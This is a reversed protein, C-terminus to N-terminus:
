AIRVMAFSQGFMMLILMVTTVVMTARLARLVAAERLQQFEQKVRV